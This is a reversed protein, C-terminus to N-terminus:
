KLLMDCCVYSIYHNLLFLFPQLCFIFL